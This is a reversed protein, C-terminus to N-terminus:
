GRGYRSRYVRFYKGLKKGQYEEKDRRVDDGRGTHKSTVGKQYGRGTSQMVSFVSAVFLSALTRMKM